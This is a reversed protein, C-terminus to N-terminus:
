FSPDRYKDRAGIRLGYGGTKIWRQTAPNKRVETWKGSEERRFTNKIGDPDATFEYKASGNQGSGSVVKASDGQVTIYTLKGVKFVEVITAADRDTWSLLTAGMGVTPEPQGIVARSQLHNVLSNTQTGIKM